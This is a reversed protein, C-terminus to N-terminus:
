VVCVCVCVVCVFWRWGVGVLRGCVLGVVWRGGAVHCVLERQTVFQHRTNYTSTVVGQTLVACKARSSGEM